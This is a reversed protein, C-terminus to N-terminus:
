CTFTHIYTKHIYAYIMHKNANSNHRETERVFSHHHGYDAAEWCFVTKRMRKRLRRSIVLHEGHGGTSRLAKGDM